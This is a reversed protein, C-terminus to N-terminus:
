ASLKIHLMERGAHIIITSHIAAFWASPSTVNPMAGHDSSTLLHKLKTGAREVHKVKDGTIATVKSEAFKLQKLLESKPTYPVFMISVIPTKKKSSGNNHTKSKRKKNESSKNENKNKNKYWNERETLKKHIRIKLTTAAPRHLPINNKAAREVKREYGVVGSIIIEHSQSHSYGSRRLRDYYDDIIENKEEQTVSDCVNQLRRILDQSLIQIKSKSSMASSQMICFPNKM